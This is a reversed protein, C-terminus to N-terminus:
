TLNIILKNNISFTLGHTYSLVNYNTLFNIVKKVIILTNKPIWGWWVEVDDFGLGDFWNLDSYYPSCILSLDQDWSIHSNFFKINPLSYKKLIPSKRHVWRLGLINIFNEKLIKKPM